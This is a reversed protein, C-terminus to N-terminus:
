EAEPCILAGSRVRNPMRMVPGSVSAQAVYRKQRAKTIAEAQIQRLRVRPAIPRFHIAIRSMSMAASIM